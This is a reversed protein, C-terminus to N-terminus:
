TLVLIDPNKKAPPAPDSDPDRSVVSRCDTVLSSWSYSTLFFARPRDCTGRRLSYLSVRVVVNLVMNSDLLPRSIKPAM